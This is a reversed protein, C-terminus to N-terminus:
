ACLQLFWAPPRSRPHAPAIAVMADGPIALHLDGSRIMDAPSPIGAAGALMEQCGTGAPVAAGDCAAAALVNAAADEGIRLLNPVPLGAVSAALSEPVKRWSTKVFGVICAAKRPSRWGKGSPSAAIEAVFGTRVCTTPSPPGARDMSEGRTDILLENGNGVTAGKCDRNTAEGGKNDTAGVNSSDKLLKSGLVGPTSGSHGVEGDAVSDTVLEIASTGTVSAGGSGNKV